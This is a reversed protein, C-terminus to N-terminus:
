LSHPSLGPRTLASGQKMTRSLLVGSGLTGTPVIHLGSFDDQPDCLASLPSFVGMLRQLLVWCWPRLLRAVMSLSQQTQRVEIMRITGLQEGRCGSRCFYDCLTDGRLRVSAM